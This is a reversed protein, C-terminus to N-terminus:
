CPVANQKGSFAVTPQVADRGVLQYVIPVFHAERTPRVSGKETGVSLSQGEELHTSYDM